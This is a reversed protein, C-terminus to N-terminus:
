FFTHPIKLYKLHITGDFGPVEVIAKLYGNHHANSVPGVVYVKINSSALVDLEPEIEKFKIYDSISFKIDKVLEFYSNKQYDTVEYLCSLPFQKFKIGASILDIGNDLNEEGEWVLSLYPTLDLNLLNNFKEIDNITLGDKDLDIVYLKKM